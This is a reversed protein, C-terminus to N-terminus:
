RTKNRNRKGRMRKKMIMMHMMEIGTELGEGTIGCTLEVCWLSSKLTRLGLARVVDKERLATPLDQKNALVLLPTNMNDQYNLTKSTKVAIIRAPVPRWVRTTQNAHWICSCQGYTM